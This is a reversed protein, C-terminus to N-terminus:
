GMGAGGLGLGLDGLSKDASGGENETRSYTAALFSRLLTRGLLNPACALRQPVRLLELCLLEEGLGCVQVNLLNIAVSDSDLVREAVVEVDGFVNKLAHVATVMELLLDIHVHSSHCFQKLRDLVVDECDTEALLGCFLM